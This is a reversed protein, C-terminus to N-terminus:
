PAITLTTVICNVQSNAVPLWAGDIVGTSDTRVLRTGTATGVYVRGDPGVNLGYADVGPGSDLAYAGVAGAYTYEVVRAGAADAVLFSDATFPVLRWAYPTVGLTAANWSTNAGTSDLEVVGQRGSGNSTTFEGGVFISNAGAVLISWGTDNLLPAFASTSSGSAQDVAAIHTRALGNLTVLGLPTIYVSSGFRYAREVINTVIPTFGSDIAGSSLSFRCIYDYTAGNIRRFDGTVYLHGGVTDAHLGFVTPNGALSGNRGTMVPNYILAGTDPHLGALGKCGVGNVTLFDGGVWLVGNTEDLVMEEVGAGGALNANFGAVAAGTDDLMAVAARSLGGITTFYGGAYVRGIAVTTNTDGQCSCSDCAPNLIIDGM